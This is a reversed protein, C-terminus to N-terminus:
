KCYVSKTQFFPLARRCISNTQNTKKGPERTALLSSTVYNQGILYFSKLFCFLFCGAHKQCTKQKEKDKERSPLSCAKGNSGM